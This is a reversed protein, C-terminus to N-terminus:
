RPLQYRITFKPGDTPRDSIVSDGSQQEQRMVSCCNPMRGTRTPSLRQVTEHLDGARVDVFSLGAQAADHLLKALETRFEQANAM